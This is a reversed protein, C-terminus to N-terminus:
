RVIGGDRDDGEMPTRALVAAWVIPEGDGTRNKDPSDGGQRQEQWAQRVARCAAGLTAGTTTVDDVVVVLRGTMDVRGLGWSRPYFARAVNAVRESPLVDRQSPRHRRGIPQCIEGGTTSRVGRAICLAHDIGRALLRRLTTPVPVLLMPQEMAKAVREDRAKEIEVREAVAAGLVRGLDRALRRWRTFKVEAVWTRMPHEYAGVRIMREWASLKDQACGTCREAGHRAAVVVDGGVGVEGFTMGCRACYATPDDPWWAASQMRDLLPAALVDLWVREIELMTKRADLGLGHTDLVSAFREGTKVAIPQVRRGRVNGADAQVVFEPESTSQQPQVEAGARRPPWAFEAKPADDPPDVRPVSWNGM